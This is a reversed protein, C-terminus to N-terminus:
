QLHTDDNFRALHYSGDVQKLESLSCPHIMFNGIKEPLFGLAHHLIARLVDGHLVFLVTKGANKGVWEDFAPGVRAVVDRYSEGNPYRFGFPDANLAEREGAPLNVRPMVGEWDGKDLEWFADDTEIKSLGLAKAILQATEVTRPLSSAIIADVPVSGALRAGLQRAQERGAEVLQSAPSRGMYYDIILNHESLGHRTLYITTELVIM